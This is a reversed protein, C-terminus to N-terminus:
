FKSMWINDKKPDSSRKNDYIWKIHRYLIFGILACMVLTLIGSFVSISNDWSMTPAFIDSRKEVVAWVNSHAREM